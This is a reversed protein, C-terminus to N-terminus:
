RTRRVRAIAEPIRHREGAGARRSHLRSAEGQCPRVRCLCEHGCQEQRGAVLGLRRRPAAAAYLKQLGVAVQQPLKADLDPRDVNLTKLADFTVVNPLFKSLVQETCEYPYHELYTLGGLMGAALSPEIKIDLQGRTPDIGQQLRVLELVDKGTEVQGATGVVEPTSYREVPLTTEVADSLKANTAATQM